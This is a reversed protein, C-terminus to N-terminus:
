KRLAVFDAFTQPVRIGLAASRNGHLEFTRCTCVLRPGYYSSINATHLIGAGVFTAVIAFAAFLRRCNSPIALCAQRSQFARALAWRFM